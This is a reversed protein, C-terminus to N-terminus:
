RGSRELLEREAETRWQEALTRYREPNERFLKTRAQGGMEKFTKLDGVEQANHQAIARDVAKLRELTRQRDVELEALTKDNEAM